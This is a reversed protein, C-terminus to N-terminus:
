RKWLWAQTPVNAGGSWTSAPPGPEGGIAEYFRNARGNAQVSWIILTRLGRKALMHRAAAFLQRGIGCGQWDPAVYLEYIEGDALRRQGALGFTAYGRAAGDAEAVLTEANHGVRWTTTRMAIMRALAVGPIIGSYAEHWAAADLAAIAPRDGSRLPRISISSAPM